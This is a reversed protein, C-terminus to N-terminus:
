RNKISDFDRAERIVIMKLPGLTGSLEALKWGLRHSHV